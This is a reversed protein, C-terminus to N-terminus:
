PKKTEKQVGALVTRQSMSQRLGVDTGKYKRPGKTHNEPNKYLRKM